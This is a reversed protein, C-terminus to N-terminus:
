LLSPVSSAIDVFFGTMRPCQTLTHFHPSSACMRSSLCNTAAGTSIKRACEVISSALRSACRREFGKDQVLPRSDCRISTEWPALGRDSSRSAKEPLADREPVARATAPEDDLGAGRRRAPTAEPDGAGEFAVLLYM